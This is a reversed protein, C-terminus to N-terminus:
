EGDSWFHERMGDKWKKQEELSAALIRHSEYQEYKKNQMDQRERTKEHWLCFDAEIPLNSWISKDDIPLEHITGQWVVGADLRYLRPCLEIPEVVWPTDIKYIKGTNFSNFLKPVDIDGIQDTYCNFRCVNIKTVNSVKIIDEVEKVLNVAPIEDADLQCVWDYTNLLRLRNDLENRMNAYHGDFLYESHEIEEQKLWEKLNTPSKVDCMVYIPKNCQRIREVTNQLYELEDYVLIGWVLM